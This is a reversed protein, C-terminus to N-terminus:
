GQGAGSRVGVEPSMLGDEDDSDVMISREKSGVECDSESGSEDEDKILISKEKSGVTRLDKKTEEWQEWMAKSGEPVDLETEEGTIMYELNVYPAVETHLTIDIYIPERLLGAGAWVPYSPYCANTPWESAWEYLIHSEERLSCNLRYVRSAAEHNALSDNISPMTKTITHSQSM